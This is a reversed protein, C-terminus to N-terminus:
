DELILKVSDRAIDGMYNEDFISESSSHFEETLIDVLEQRKSETLDDYENDVISCAEEFCALKLASEIGANIGKKKLIEVAKELDKMEDSEITLVYM